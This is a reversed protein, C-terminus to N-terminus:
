LYLSIRGGGGSTKECRGMPGRCRMPADGVGCARM